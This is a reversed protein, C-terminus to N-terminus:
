GTLGIVSLRRGFLLVPCKHETNSNTKTNTNHCRIMDTWNCPPGERVDVVVSGLLCVLCMHEPKRCNLGPVQTEVDQNSSSM